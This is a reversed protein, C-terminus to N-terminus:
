VQPISEAPRKPQLKGHLLVAIASESDVMDSMLQCALEVESSLSLFV